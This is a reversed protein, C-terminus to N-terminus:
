EGPSKMKWHGIKKGKWGTRPTRLALISFHNAMEKEGTPWTKDSSEVIVQGDQTARCSMPWLKISNSFAITWTILKTLKRHNHNENQRGETPSSYSGKPLKRIPLSVSPSVPDQESPHPRAWYIKLGIKQQHTPSHERGTAQGSAFSHVWAEVPSEQVSMPMEWETDKPSVAGKEQSSTRALNRKHGGLTPKGLGTCTTYDFGVPRWLWIGQPNETGKGSGWTPFDTTPGLVKNVTHSYRQYLQEATQPDDVRCSQPPYRQM